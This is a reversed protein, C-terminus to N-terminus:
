RRIGKTGSRATSALPDIQGVARDIQHVLALGLEGAQKLGNLELLDPTDKPTHIHLSKSSLAFLSAAELGRWRFPMDDMLVGPLFFCRRLPIRGERALGLIRTALKSRGGGLLMLRGEIGVGDLNLICTDGSSLEDRHSNVYSWAGLLGEEEADTILFEVTTESPPKERVAEALALLVGLGSADDLAGPSIDFTKIRYVMLACLATFASLFGIEQRTPPPLFVSGPFSASFYLLSLILCLLFLGFLLLTRNALSLSQAKSDYHAVLLIRKRGTRRAALSAVLNVGPYSRPKLPLSGSSILANWLHGASFIAVTPAFMLLCAILPHNKGIVYSVALLLLTLTIAGKLFLFPAWQLSFKEQSVSYGLKQFEGILYDRSRQGGPGGTMRPFSLSRAHLLAREGSFVAM